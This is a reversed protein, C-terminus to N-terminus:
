TVSASVTSASRAAPLSHGGSGGSPKGRAQGLSVGRDALWAAIADYSPEPLGIVSEVCDAFEDCSEAWTRLNKPQYGDKARYHEATPEAVRVSLCDPRDLRRQRGLFARGDAIRLLIKTRIVLDLLKYFPKSSSHRIASSGSALYTKLLEEDFALGQKNAEAVMWLLTTDSLGHEAFGGGVDTHVGEFWM